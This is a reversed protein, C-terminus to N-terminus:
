VLFLLFKASSRLDNLSAEHLQLFLYPKKWQCKNSLFYVTFLVKNYTQNLLM